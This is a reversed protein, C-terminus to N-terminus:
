RILFSGARVAVCVLGAGDWFRMAPGGRACPCVGILPTACSLQSSLSSMAIPLQFAAAKCRECKQRRGEARQSSVKWRGPRTKLQIAAVAFVDPKRAGAADAVTRGGHLRVPALSM